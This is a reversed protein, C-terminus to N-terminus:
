KRNIYNKLFTNFVRENGVNHLGLATINTTNHKPNLLGRKIFAGPHISNKDIVV